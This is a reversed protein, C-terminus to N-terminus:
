NDSSCSFFFWYFLTWVCVELGRYAENIVPFDYKDMYRANASDKMINTFTSTTVSGTNLDIHYRTVNAEGCTSGNASSFEPPNLMNDLDVYTRIGLPDAPSLDLLIKNGEETEYANIHHYSVLTHAEIKKVEGTKLHVVFTETPENEHYELCEMVHFKNGFLCSLDSKLELPYYFFVAYNKTISFSYLFLSSNTLKLLTGEIYKFLDSPSM